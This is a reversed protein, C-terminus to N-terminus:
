RYDLELTQGLLELRYTTGPQMDLPQILSGSLLHQGTRLPGFRSVLDRVMGIMTSLPGGVLNISSGTFRSEETKLVCHLVDFAYAPDFRALKGIRYFSAVAGDALFTPIDFRWETRSDAVEFAPSVFAISDLLEATSCHEDVIDRGLVFLVEAELKPALTLTATLHKDSLLMFDFLPAYLPKDLSFREMASRNAMAVKWGTHQYGAATNLEIMKHQVAYGDEIDAGEFGTFRHLTSVSRRAKDQEIAIAQYDPYKASM